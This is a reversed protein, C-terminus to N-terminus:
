DIKSVKVTRTFSVAEIRYFYTGPALDRGADNTGLWDVRHRGSALEGDRLTAVVRGQVDIVRVRVQSSADLELLVSTSTRFPNPRAVLMAPPAATPADAGLTGPRHAEIFASPETYRALVFAPDGGGGSESPFYCAALDAIRIEFHLHACITGADKDGVEGVVQGRTVAEGPAVLAAYMHGYVSWVVGYEPIGEHRIVLTGWSCGDPVAVVIGDAVAHVPEMADEDCSTGDKNWDEGPHLVCGTGGPYEHPELFGLGDGCSGDVCSEAVCGSGDNWGTGDPYGVPFDFGISPADPDRVTFYSDSFDYVEGGMASIGMEYRGSTPQDEPITWVYSGDNETASTIPPLPTGDDYPQILVDGLVHDSDWTIAYTGGVDWVDGGSPTVVDLTPSLICFDGESQDFVTGSMMSMAIRYDCSPDLDFPPEFPYTGTDEAAAALQRVNEGNRYLDIQVPGSVDETTWTIAYLHGMYLTESGDPFTVDIAPMTETIEFVADSVDSRTGGDFYGTVRVLCTSSAPGAVTWAHSSTSGSLGTAIPSWTAGATRSLEADFADYCGPNQWTISRVEGAAWSEGGNPSTIVVQKPRITFDADSLDWVEGGMASIAIQYHTSTPSTAPITWDYAGDNATAGTIVTQPVGNIYPQIQISGLVHDFTWLITRTEGCEWVEGGNPAILTLMPDVISFYGSFDYITGDLNSIAIEYDNGEPWEFPPALPYAGDNPDNAALSTWFSGGKYVHIRVNGVPGSSTWTITYPNGFYLTEGGTPFTIDLEGGVVTFARPNVGGGTTSFDFWSGGPLKGRIMAQYTGPPNGFIQGSPSRSWTENPGITVDHYTALDFLYSGDGRLIAVAIAEFTQYDGDVERLTFDVTFSTEIVVPDPTVYVGQWVSVYGSQAEAATALLATFSVALIAIRSATM